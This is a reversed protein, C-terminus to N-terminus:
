NARGGGHAKKTGADHGVDGQSLDLAPGDQAAAHRPGASGCLEHAPVRRHRLRSGYEREPQSLRDFENGSVVAQWGHAAQHPALVVLHASLENKANKALLPKKAFLAGVVEQRRRM